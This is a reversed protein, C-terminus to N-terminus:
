DRQIEMAMGHQLHWRWGATWYYDEDEFYVEILANGTISGSKVTFTAAGGATRDKWM